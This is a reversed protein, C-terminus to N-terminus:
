MRKKYEEIFQDEPLPKSFYYGQMYDVGMNSLKAYSEATEVMQANVKFDYRKGALVVDNEEIYEQSAKIFDIPMDALDDIDTDNNLDDIALGVGFTKIASLKKEIVEANETGIGSSVELVLNKSNLKVENLADLIEDM